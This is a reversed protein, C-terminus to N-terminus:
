LVRIFTFLLYWIRFQVPRFVYWVPYIPISICFTAYLSLFVCCFSALSDFCSLPLFLNLSQKCVAWHIHLTFYSHSNDHLSALPLAKTLVSSPHLVRSSILLFYWASDNHAQWIKCPCRRLIHVILVPLFQFRSSSAWLFCKRDTQLRLAHENSSVSMTCQCRDFVM